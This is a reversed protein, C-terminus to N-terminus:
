SSAPLVFSPFSGPVRLAALWKFLGASVANVSYLCVILHHRLRSICGTVSFLESFHLVYSETEARKQVDLGVVGVFVSIYFFVELTQVSLLGIVWRQQEAGVYSVCLFWNGAVTGERYRALRWQIFTYPEPPRTHIKSLHRGWGWSLWQIQNVCVFFPDIPTLLSVDENWDVIDRLCSFLFSSLFFTNKEWGRLETGTRIYDKVECTFNWVKVVMKKKVM